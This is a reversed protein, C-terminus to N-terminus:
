TANENDRGGMMKLFQERAAFNGRPDSNGSGNPPRPQQVTNQSRSLWSGLFKPLGEFTKRKSPNDRCWQLAKRCESLVEVGPFSEVYEALKSETLHWETRGSKGKVCPFSIVAEDPSSDCRPEDCDDKIGEEGQDKIGEKIRDLSSDERVNAFGRSDERPAPIKSVSPKDIKQHNLWNRIEVYSAGDVVYRQVCEERELEELWTDIKKPADNDYPFLLSALMRSNGRLRGSDDALTWLLVFTLRADRSVNGMSESHPFEPKICRIRAM